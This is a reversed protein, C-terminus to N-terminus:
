IVILWLIDIVYHEPTSYDIYHLLFSFVSFRTFCPIRLVTRLLIFFTSNYAWFKSVARRM